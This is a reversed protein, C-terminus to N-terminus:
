HIGASLCVVYSRSVAFRLITPIGQWEYGHWYSIDQTSRPLQIDNM